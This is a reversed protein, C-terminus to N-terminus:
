AKLEAGDIIKYAIMKELLQAHAERPTDAVIGYDIRAETLSSKGDRRPVGQAEMILGSLCGQMKVYAWDEPTKALNKTSSAGVAALRFRETPTMILVEYQRHRGSLFLDRRDLRVM